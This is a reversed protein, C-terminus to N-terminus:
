YLHLHITGLLFEISKEWTSSVPKANILFDEETNGIAQKFMQEISEGKFQNYCRVPKRM